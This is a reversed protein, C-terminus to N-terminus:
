SGLPVGLQDIPLVGQGNAVKQHSNNMISLLNEICQKVPEILEQNGQQMNRVNNASFAMVLRDCVYM